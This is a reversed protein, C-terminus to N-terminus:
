LLVLFQNSPLQRPTRMHTPTSASLQTQQTDLHAVQHHVACQAAPYLRLVACRVASTVLFPHTRPQVHHDAQYHPLVAPLSQLACCDARCHFRFHVAILLTAQATQSRRDKDKHFIQMYMRPAQVNEFASAHGVGSGAAAQQQQQWAGRSLSTHMRLQQRM